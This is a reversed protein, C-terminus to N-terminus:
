RMTEKNIIPLRRVQYSVEKYPVSEEVAWAEFAVAAEAEIKRTDNTRCSSLFLFFMVMIAIFQRYNQMGKDGKGRM